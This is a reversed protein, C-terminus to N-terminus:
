ASVEFHEAPLGACWRQWMMRMACELNKTVQVADCLPSSRLRERMGQRLASLAALDQAKATGVSVFAEDSDAIWDALGVRAMVAASQWSLASATTSTLTPVGMWLGLNTTTGGPYPLTDLLVDVGAHLAVYEDMSTKYAFQLRAAAVGCGVMHALIEDMTIDAQMAGILLQANPLANLLKAWRTLTGSNLKMPRQFSGFTVYGNALAPLPSLDPLNMLPDFKGGSPLRVLKEVFQSESGVPARFPDTIRYDIASLGTTVPYGIWSVQIPAPKRAFVSLRNHATHGSLDFLIDIQDATILSAMADDSLSACNVWRSVLGKLQASGGDEVSHTHYAVCDFETQDFHRLIPELFLRVVHAKLDGSVWGIRLKRDPRKDNRHQPWASRWPAEVLQAYAVHEALVTAEAVGEAHVLAFLYSCRAVANAPELAVARHYSLLAQATHGLSLLAFGLNLHVNSKEPALTLCHAFRQAAEHIRGLDRLALGNAMQAEVLKPALALAQESAELADQPRGLECLVQARQAHANAAHPQALLARDLWVLAQAGDGIARLLVGHNCLTEGDKPLLAVAQQSSRVAEEFLGSLSSSAGEVGNTQIRGGRELLGLQFQAVSLVKWAQGAEPALSVCRLGYQASASFDGRLYAAQSQQLYAQASGQHIGHARLAQLHDPRLSRLGDARSLAHMASGARKTGSPQTLQSFIHDM